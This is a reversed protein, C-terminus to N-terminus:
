WACFSVVFLIIAVAPRLGLAIGFAILVTVAGAFALWWLRETPHSLSEKVRQRASWAVVLAFAVIAGQAQEGAYPFGSGGGGAQNLGWVGAM